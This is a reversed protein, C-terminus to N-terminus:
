RGARRRSRGASSRGRISSVAPVDAEDAGPSEPAAEAADASVAPGPVPAPDDAGPPADPASPPGDPAAVGDPAAGGDAAADPAPGPAADPGPVVALPAPRQPVATRPVPSTSADMEAALRLRASRAMALGPELALARDFSVLALAHEGLAQLSTGLQLHTVPHEGGLELSRMFYFTADRHRGMRGLLRGIEFPLDGSATAPVHHAWCRDLVEILERQQHYSAEDVTRHLVPVLGHLTVPDHDSLRLASLAEALTLADAHRLLATLVTFRDVPGGSTHDAFARATEPWDGEAGLVVAMTVLSSQRSPPRLVRGGLGAAWGAVADYNVMMSFSGHGAPQPDARGIMEDRHMWGKDATLLLMRDGSLARLRDLADLTGVPFSFATDPLEAAYAALVADRVPDGYHGPGAAVHTYHLRLGELCRPDDWDPEDTGGATRVLGQELRGLRVRFADQPLSDFIYNAVVVLPNAVDGPGLEVGAHRLVLRDSTTCDFHAQDLVGDAIAAALVPNRAQDRLNSEAADTMVYRLRLPPLGSAGVLERLRTLLLHSMRGHGTGLEVVHVPEAPDLADRAHLDHLHALVTRAYSHAMYANSTIHFPVPGGAWAAVGRREYYEGIWTWVVSRSLPVPAASTRTVEVRETATM